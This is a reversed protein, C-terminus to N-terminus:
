TLTWHGGATALIVLAASLYLVDYYWGDSKEGWFGVDWVAAKKYIAGLMVGILLVAGIQPFLGAAISIAGALEALGLAATFAPSMGISEARERPETLHSWGSTAFILALM